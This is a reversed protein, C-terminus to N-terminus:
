VKKNILIVSNVKRQGYHDYRKNDTPFNVVHSGVSGREKIWMTTSGGGDLNLASMPNFYSQLFTTLERCSMGASSEWRGDVTILLLQKNGTIAVAVRPHRVGQHRRYDEYDLSELDSDSMNEAFNLGLPNYNDILLPAGSMIDTYLSAKYSANTGKKIDIKKENKDYFLAAAHKWFRVHDKAITVECDIHGKTKIFSVEPEFYTANIGAIAHHKEAFSSLSDANDSYIFEINYTDGKLDVELINITQNSEFPGYFGTYNYWICGKSITDSVWGTQVKLTPEQPINAVKKDSCQWSALALILVCIIRINNDM